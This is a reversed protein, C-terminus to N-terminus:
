ACERELHFRPRRRAHHDAQDYVVYPNDRYHGRLYTVPLGVTWACYDMHVQDSTGYQDLQALWREDFAAVRPTHRRVLLGTTSLATPAFGDLRYRALAARIRAPEAIKLRIVAEGEEYCSSRDPHRLCACLAGDSDALLAPWDQVRMSADIWVSAEALPFLIHPTLKLRRALARPQHAPPQLVVTWGTGALAPDDTFCVCVDPGAPAPKLRDSGGLIATYCVIM